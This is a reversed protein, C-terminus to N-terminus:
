FFRPLKSISCLQLVLPLELSLIELHIITGCADLCSVFLCHNKQCLNQLLKTSVNVNETFTHFLQVAVHHAFVSGGVHRLLMYFADTFQHYASTVPAM